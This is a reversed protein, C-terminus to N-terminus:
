VLWHILRITSVILLSIIYSTINFSIQYVIYQQYIRQAFGYGSTLSGNRMDIAHRNVRQM